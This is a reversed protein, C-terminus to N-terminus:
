SNQAEGIAEVVEWPRLEYSAFAGGIMYPDASVISTAGELTDVDYIFLAGSGDMFPGGIILKGEARLQSMYARHKPRLGAVKESDGIYRAHNVVKM